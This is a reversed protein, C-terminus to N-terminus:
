MPTDPAFLLEGHEIQTVPPVIVRKRTLDLEAQPAIAGATTPMTANPPPEQSTAPEPAPQDSSPAIPEDPTM